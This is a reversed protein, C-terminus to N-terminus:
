WCSSMPAFAFIQEKLQEDLVADLAQDDIIRM